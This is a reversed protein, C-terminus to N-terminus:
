TEIEAVTKSKFWIACSYLINSSDICNFSISTLREETSEVPDTESDGSRSRRADQQKMILTAKNRVTLSLIEPVSCM